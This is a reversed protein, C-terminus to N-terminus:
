SGPEISWSLSTKAASRPSPLSLTIQTCRRPGEPNAFHVSEEITPVADGSSFLWSRGNPLLLRIENPGSGPVVKVAPHIHFRVVVPQSGRWPRGDPREFQDSGRLAGDRASLSLSRRHMLRFRPRYGDHRLELRTEDPGEERNATLKTPGAVIPRGILGTQLAQPAFSASSISAVVATSHAATQRALDRWVERGAGPSGCNVVIRTQDASFEFALAGAHAEQAMAAPPPRGADVLLVAGAAEIRQYGGHPASRMPRGRTEEYLLLKTLLHAQTYGMGNFAALAGDTHRFFRLMPMMRDIAGLVEPPPVLNSAAFSQRLPLLDLLLEILAQPNRSVHCGDPLVQRSLERALWRLACRRLAGRNSLCLSAQMVAVACLLHPLGDRGKPGVQLLYRCQWNLSRLFARNFARDAGELVMPAQSLWAQLRRSTVVPELAPPSYRVASQLFDAVLQRAMARTTGNPAAGLHRLWTFGFLADQWAQSPARVTFPSAEGTDVTKGALTFRGEVIEAARIPDPARLDQPALVLREPGARAFRWRYLPSRFLGLLVTRGASGAVLRPLRLAAAFVM